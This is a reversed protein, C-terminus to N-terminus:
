AEAAGARQEDVRQVGRRGTENGAQVACGRLILRRRRQTPRPSLWGNPIIIGDPVDQIM